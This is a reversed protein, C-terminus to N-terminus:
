VINLRNKSLKVYEESIDIGLYNRQLNQAAVLTSGLGMFPDCILDNKNSAGKIFYEALKIPFVAFHSDAIRQSESGISILTSPLAGKPNPKWEKYEITNNNDKNRAFRRKIPKQMRKISIENYTVRMEDLNFVFNDSKTFWFIYEIKNGFRYRYPLYKGKNWFLREFLKFGTEKVIRCVLEFIHISRFGNVVKDDINLIFSGNNSLVRHFEKIKPVLWDNYKDITIIEKYNYKDEIGAYPPSCFILKCFEDPLEKLVM